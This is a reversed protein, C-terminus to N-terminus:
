RGTRRPELSAEIFMALEGHGEACLRACFLRAQVDLPLTILRAIFGAADLTVAADNAPPAIAAAGSM